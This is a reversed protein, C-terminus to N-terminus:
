SVGVDGLLLNFLSEQKREVGDVMEYVQGNANKKESKGKGRLGWSEDKSTLARM